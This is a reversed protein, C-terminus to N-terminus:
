PFRRWSLGSIGTTTKSSFAALVSVTGTALQKQYLSTSVIYGLASDDPSWALWATGSTSSVKGISGTTVNLTFLSTTKRTDPSRFAIQDGAHNWAPYDIRSFGASQSVMISELGYSVPNGFSDIIPRTALTAYVSQVPYYAYAISMSAPDWTPSIPFDENNSVAPVVQAADTGDPRMIYIANNASFAIWKGDPSWAPEYAQLEDPGIKRLNTGQVGTPTVSVDIIWISQNASFALSGQYGPSDPNQDPSWSPHAPYRVLSQPTTSLITTQNSGDANMVMLDYAATTRNLSYQRVFAIAPDPVQACVPLTLLAALMVVALAILTWRAKM